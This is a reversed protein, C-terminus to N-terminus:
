SGQQPVTMLPHLYSRSYLVCQLGHREIVCQPSPSTQPSCSPLLCQLGQRQGAVGTLPPVFQQPQVHLQLLPDLLQVPLYFFLDLLPRLREAQQRMGTHSRHRCQRRLHEQSVRAAEGLALVYGAVDSHDWTFVGATLPLPQPFQGLLAVRQQAIQPGFRRDMRYSFIWFQFAEITALKDLFPHALRPNRRRVFQTDAQPDHQAVLNVVFLETAASLPPLAPFGMRSHWIVVTTRCQLSRTVSYAVRRGSHPSNSYTMMISPSRLSTQHAVGGFQHLSFPGVGNPQVCIM